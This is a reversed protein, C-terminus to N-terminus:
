NIILRFVFAFIIMDSQLVCHNKDAKQKASSIFLNETNEFL